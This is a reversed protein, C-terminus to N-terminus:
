KIMAKPGVWGKFLAYVYLLLTALMLLFIFFRAIKNKSREHNYIMNVNVSAEQDSNGSKFVKDALETNISLKVAQNGLYQAVWHGEFDLRRRFTRIRKPCCFWYLIWCLLNGLLLPCLTMLTYQFYEIKDTSIANVILPWIFVLALVVYSFKAIRGMSKTLLLYIFDWTFHFVKKLWSFSQWVGVNEPKFELSNKVASVLDVFETYSDKDKKELHGISNTENAEVTITASSYVLVGIGPRSDRYAEIMAVGDEGGGLKKDFIILEINEHKKLVDLLETLNLCPYCIIGGLSMYGIADFYDKINDDVWAIHKFDDM